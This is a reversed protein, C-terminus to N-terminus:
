SFLLLTMPSITATTDGYITHRPISNNVIFTGHRQALRQRVELTYIERLSDLYEEIVDTPVKIDPTLLQANHLTEFQRCETRGLHIEQMPRGLHSSGPAIAVVNGDYVYERGRLKISTHYIADLQFGLFGASMQRAMGGSLDYVLLHVDM